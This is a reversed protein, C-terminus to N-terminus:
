TAFLGLSTMSCGFKIRILTTKLIIIRLMLFLRGFLKSEIIVALLLLLLLSAWTLCLHYPAMQSSALWYIFRIFFDSWYFHDLARWLGLLFKGTRLSVRPSACDAQLLDGTGVQGWIEAPFPLLNLKTGVLGRAPRSVLLRAAEAPTGLVATPARPWSSVVLACCLLTNMTTGPFGWASPPPPQPGLAVTRRPQGHVWWKIYLTGAVPLKPKGKIMWERDPGFKAGKKKLFRPRSDPPPNPVPSPRSPSTRFAGPNVSESGPRFSTARSTPTPPPAPIDPGQSAPSFFFFSCFLAAATETRSQPKRAGERWRGAEQCGGGTTPPGPARQATAPGPEEVPLTPDLWSRPAARLAGWVSCGVRTQGEWPNQSGWYCTNENVRQAWLSKQSNATM